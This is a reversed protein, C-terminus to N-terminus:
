VKGSTIWVRPPGEELFTLIEGNINRMFERYMEVSFREASDFYNAVLFELYSKHPFFYYKKAKSNLVGAQSVPEIVSGVLAERVATASQRGSRISVPILESPVEEPLFRNEKKANLLWWAMAQM